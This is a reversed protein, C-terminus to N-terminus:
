NVRRFRAPTDTFVFKLVMGTRAPALIRLDVLIMFLAALRWLIQEM